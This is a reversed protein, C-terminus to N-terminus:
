KHILMKIFFQFLYDFGGLLAAVVLSIVIVVLTYHLTEKKTPWSVTKMEAKSEKLYSIISNPIKQLKSLNM